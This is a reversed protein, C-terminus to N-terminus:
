LEQLTRLLTWWPLPFPFPCPPDNSPTIALEARRYSHLLIGPADPQCHQAHFSTWREFARRFAAKQTCPVGLSQQRIRCESIWMVLCCPVDIRCHNVTMDTMHGWRRNRRASSSRSRSRSFVHARREAKCSYADRSDRGLHRSLLFTNEASSKWWAQLTGLM